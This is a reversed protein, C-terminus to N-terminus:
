IFANAQHVLKLQFCFQLDASVASEKLIYYIVTAASLHEKIWSFFFDKTILWCIVITM